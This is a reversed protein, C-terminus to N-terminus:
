HSLIIKETKVVKDDIILSYLYLGSNYNSPLYIFDFDNTINMQELLKGQMDYIKIEAKKADSPLTYNLKLQENAPNPFFRAVETTNNSLSSIGAVGMSGDVCETCPISGPLAYVEHYLAPSGIGLKLKAGTGISYIPDYNIMPNTGTM